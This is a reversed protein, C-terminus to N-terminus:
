CPGRPPPRYAPSGSRAASAARLRHEHLDIGAPSSAPGPAQRRDGAHRAYRRCDSRRRSRLRSRARCPRAGRARGRRDDCAPPPQELQPRHPHAELLDEQLDRGVLAAGSGGAPMAAASSDSRPPLVSSWREYCGRSRRCPAARRVEGRRDGVDDDPEKRQEEAPEEVDVQVDEDLLALAHRHAAASVDVHVLLHNAADQVVGRDDDEEHHRHDRHPGVRFLLPRARDLQQQGRRDGVECIM